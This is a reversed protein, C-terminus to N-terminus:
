FVKQLALCLNSKLDDGSIQSAERGKEAWTKHVFYKVSFHTLSWSEPGELKPRHKATGETVM